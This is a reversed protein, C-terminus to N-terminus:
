STVYMKEAENILIELRTELIAESALKRDIFLQLTCCLGPLGLDGRKIAQQVLGRSVAWSGCINNLKRDLWEYPEEDELNHLIAEPDGCLAAVADEAKAVPISELLQAAVLTLKSLMTPAVMVSAASNSSNIVRHPLFAPAPIPSYTPSGPPLPLPSAVTPHVPHPERFFSKM